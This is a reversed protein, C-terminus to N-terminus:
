RCHNQRNIGTNGIGGSDIVGALALGNLPGQVVHAQFRALRYGIDTRLLNEDAGTSVRANFVQSGGRCHDLAFGHRCPDVLRQHYGTGARDLGLRFRLAQVFDKDIGAHLPAFRTTGHAQRHVSVLQSRPLM